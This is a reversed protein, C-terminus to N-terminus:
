GLAPIVAACPDPLLGLQYCCDLPTFRRVGLGSMNYTLVHQLRHNRRNRRLTWVSILRRSPRVDTFAAAMSSSLRTVYDVEDRRRQEYIALASDAVGSENAWGPAEALCESLRWADAIAANMGQGAMPHVAHAADGILM